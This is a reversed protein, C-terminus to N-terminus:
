SKFFLKILSESVKGQKSASQNLEELKSSPSLYFYPKLIFYIFCPNAKSLCSHESPAEPATFAIFYLKIKCHFIHIRPKGWHLTPSISVRYSNIYFISFYPEHMSCANSPGKFSNGHHFVSIQHVKFPHYHTVLKQRFSPSIHINFYNYPNFLCIEIFVCWQSTNIMGSSINWLTMDSRIKSEQSTTGRQVDVLSIM